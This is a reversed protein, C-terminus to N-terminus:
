PLEVHLFTNKAVVPGLQAEEQFLQMTLIVTKKELISVGYKRPLSKIVSRVTHEKELSVIIHYFRLDLHAADIARLAPKYQYPRGFFKAGCELERKCKELDPEERLAKEVSQQWRRIRFIKM